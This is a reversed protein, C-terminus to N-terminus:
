LQFRMVIELWFLLLGLPISIMVVVSFVLRNEYLNLLGDESHDSVYLPKGQVGFLPQGNDNGRVEGMVYVQIGDELLLERFRLTRVRKGEDSKIGYRELVREQNAYSMLKMDRSLDPDFENESKLEISAHKLDVVAIGSGDDVGFRLMKEDRILGDWEAKGDNKEYPNRRIHRREEVLFDYYVCAKESYPSILTQSLSIIRGEIEHFGDCLDSIRSTKTSSILRRLRKYKVFYYVAIAEIILVVIIVTLTLLDIKM